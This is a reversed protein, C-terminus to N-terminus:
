FGVGLALRNEDLLSPARLPAFLGFRGVADHGRLRADV